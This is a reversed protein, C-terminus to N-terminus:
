GKIDPRYKHIEQMLPSDPGESFLYLFRCRQPPPHYLWSHAWSCASAWLSAETELAIM